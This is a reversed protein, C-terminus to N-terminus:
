FHLLSEIELVARRRGRKLIELDRAGSLISGLVLDPVPQLSSSRPVVRSSREVRGGGEGSM